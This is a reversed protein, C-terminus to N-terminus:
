QKPANQFYDMLERDIEVDRIQKLVTILKKVSESEETFPKKQFPSGFEALGYLVTRNPLVLRLIEGDKLAKKIQTYAQREKIGKKDAVFSAFPKGEMWKGCIRLVEAVAINSM